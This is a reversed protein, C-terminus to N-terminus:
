KKDRTLLSKSQIVNASAVVTYTENCATVSVGPAEIPRM